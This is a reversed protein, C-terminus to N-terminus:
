GEGVLKRACVEDQEVMNCLAKYEQHIQRWIERQEPTGDGELVLVAFSDRKERLRRLFYREFSPTQKLIRIDTLDQSAQALGRQNM